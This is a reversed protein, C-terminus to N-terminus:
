TVAERFERLLRRLIEAREGEIFEVVSSIRTVPGHDGSVVAIGNQPATGEISIVGDTIGFVGDHRCFILAREFIDKKKLDRKDAIIEVAPRHHSQQPFTFVDPQIQEFPDRPLLIM